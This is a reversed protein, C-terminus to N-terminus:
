SEKGGSPGTNHTELVTQNNHDDDVGGNFTYCNGYRYDWFKNWYESYNKRYTLIRAKVKVHVLQIHSISQYCSQYCSLFIFLFFLLRHHCHLLLLFVLVLVLVLVVFLYRDKGNHWFFFVVCCCSCLLFFCLFPSSRWAAEVEKWNRKSVSSHNGATLEGSTATMCSIRM